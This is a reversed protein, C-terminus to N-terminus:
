QFNETLDKMAETLYLTYHLETIVIKIYMQLQKIYYIMTKLFNYQVTITNNQNLFLPSINVLLYRTFFLTDQKSVFSCCVPLHLLNLRKEFFPKLKLLLCCIIQESQSCYHVHLERQNNIDSSIKLSLAVQNCSLKCHGGTM